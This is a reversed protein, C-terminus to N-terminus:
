SLREATSAACSEGHVVNASSTLPRLIGGSPELCAALTLWSSKRLRMRQVLISLAELLEVLSSLQNCYMLRAALQSCPALVADVDTWRQTFRSVHDAGVSVGMYLARAIHDEYQLWQAESYAQQLNRFFQPGSHVALAQLLGAPPRVDAPLLRLKDTLARALHDPADPHSWVSTLASGMAELAALDQQETIDQVM